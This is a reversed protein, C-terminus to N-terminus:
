LVDSVGFAKFKKDLRAESASGSFNPYPSSIFAIRHSSSLMFKSANPAGRSSYRPSVLVIRVQNSLVLQELTSDTLILSNMVKASFQHM